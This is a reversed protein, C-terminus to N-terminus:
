SPSSTAAALSPLAGTQKDKNVNHNERVIRAFIGKEVLNRNLTLKRVPCKM